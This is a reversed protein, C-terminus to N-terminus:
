WNLDSFDKSFDEMDEFLLSDPYHDDTNQVAELKGHGVDRANTAEVRIARKPQMDLADVEEQVNNNDDHHEERESRRRSPLGDGRQPSVGEGEDQGDEGGSSGEGDKGEAILKLCDEEDRLLERGKPIASKLHEEIKKKMVTEDFAERKKLANLVKERNRKLERHYLKKVQNRDKTQLLVSILHFDTGFQSLGEYFKKLEALSFSVRSSRSPGWDPPPPAPPSSGASDASGSGSLGLELGVGDGDGEFGSESSYGLTSRYEITSSHSKKSATSAAFAVSATAIMDTITRNSLPPTPPLQEVPVLSLQQLSITGHAYRGYSPGQLAATFGGDYSDSRMGFGLSSGSGQDHFDNTTSVNVVDLDMTDPPDDPFGFALEAIDDDM